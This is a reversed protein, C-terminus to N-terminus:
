IYCAWITHVNVGIHIYEYIYIYTYMYVGNYVMPLKYLSIIYRIGNYVYWWVAQHVRGPESQISPAAAVTTAQTTFTWFKLTRTPFFPIFWPLHHSMFPIYHSADGVTHYKPNNYYPILVRILQPTPGWKSHNYIRKHSSGHWEHLYIMDQGTRMPLQYACNRCTTKVPGGTHYLLANGTTLIHMRKWRFLSGNISSLLPREARSKITLGGELWFLGGWGEVPLDPAPLLLLLPYLVLFLFGM